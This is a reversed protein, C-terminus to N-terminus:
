AREYQEVARLAQVTGIRKLASLSSLYVGRSTGRLQQQRNNAQKYNKLIDILAPVASMHGIEGLADAAASAIMPNIDNLLPLLSPVATRDGIQALARIASARVDDPRNRLVKVLEPVVAPNKTSGLKQAAIQSMERDVDNLKGLWKSIFAPHTNEAM